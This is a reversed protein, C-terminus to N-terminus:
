ASTISARTPEHVVELKIGDPDFFFAAYYGEVYHPFEKPASETEVDQRLVWEWCQTSPKAHRRRSRLSVHACARACSRPRWHLDMAVGSRQRSRGSSAPFRAARTRGPM